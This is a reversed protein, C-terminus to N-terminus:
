KINELLVAKILQGDNERPMSAVPFNVAADNILKALRLGGVLVQKKLTPLVKQAYEDGFTPVAAPDFNGGRFDCFRRDRALTGPAKDAYVLPHLAQSEKYWETPTKSLVADTEESSLQTDELVTKVIEQYGFYRKAPIRQQENLIRAREKMVDFLREDWLTHLNTKEVAGTGPTIWNVVCSNGGVDLGNGVHLPMHVDGVVHTLYRLLVMKKHVELNPDILLAPIQTIFANADRKIVQHPAKHDYSEVGEPIECFHYADLEKFRKDSRVHDPFTASVALPEAGLISVVMAKAKPTLNREAIEGVAQHGLDGWAFAFQPLIACAVLLASTKLKM